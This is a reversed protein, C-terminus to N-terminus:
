PANVVLSVPVVLPSNAVGPATFDLTPTYIGANLIAASVIFLVTNPTTGASLSINLWGGGGSIATVAGTWAVSEGNTSITLTRNPPNAAVATTFTLYCPKSHTFVSRSHWVRGSGRRWRLDGSGHLHWM